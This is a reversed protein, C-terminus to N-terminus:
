ANEEEQSVTSNNIPELLKTTIGVSLFIEFVALMIFASRELKTWDSPNWSWNPFSWCAYTGALLLFCVIIYIRIAKM